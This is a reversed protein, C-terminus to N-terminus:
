GIWFIAPVPNSFEVSCHILYSRNALHLHRLLISNWTPHPIHFFLALINIHSNLGSTCHVFHLKDRENNASTHTNILKLKLKLLIYKTDNVLVLIDNSPLVYCITSCLMHKNPM